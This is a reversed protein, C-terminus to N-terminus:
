KEKEEDPSKLNRLELSLSTTCIGAKYFLLSLGAQCLYYVGVCCFYNHWGDSMGQMKCVAYCNQLSLFCNPDMQLIHMDM